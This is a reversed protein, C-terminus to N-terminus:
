DYSVFYLIEGNYTTFKILFILIDLYLNDIAFNNMGKNDIRNTSYVGKGFLFTPLFVSCILWFYCINYGFLIMKFDCGLYFFFYIFEFFLYSAFILYSYFLNGTIMKKRVAFIAFLSILFSFKFFINPFIVKGKFLFMSINPWLGSRIQFILSIFCVWGLFKIIKDKM